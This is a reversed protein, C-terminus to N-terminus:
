TAHHLGDSGSRICAAIRDHNLKSGPSANANLRKAGTECNLEEDHAKAEILLLGAKNEITCTSAIDFNPTKSNPSGVSLWWDRLQKGIKPDVLRPAKDLQAEECDEFGQPMWRDAASVSGFPAALQTLRAAVQDESGNTLLHCRPKSGRREKPKLRDLLNNM